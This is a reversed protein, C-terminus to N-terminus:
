LVIKNKRLPYEFQVKLRSYRLLGMVYFFGAICLIKFVGIPCIGQIAPKRSVFLLPISRLMTDISRDINPLPSMNQYFHVGQRKPPATKGLPTCEAHLNHKTEGNAILTQNLALLADSKKDIMIAKNSNQM